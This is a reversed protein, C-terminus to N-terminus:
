AQLPPLGLFELTQRGIQVALLHGGLFTLLQDTKDFLPDQFHLLPRLLHELPYFDLLIFHHGLSLKIHQDSNLYKTENM